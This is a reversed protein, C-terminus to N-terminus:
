HTSRPVKGHSGEKDVHSNEIEEHSSLWRQQGYLFCHAYSSARSM